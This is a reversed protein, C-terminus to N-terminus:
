KHSLANLVDADAVQTYGKMQQYTVTAPYYREELLVKHTQSYATSVYTFVELRKFRVALDLANKTGVVNVQYADVLDRDFRVDAAVHFLLSVRECIERRDREALGFNVDDLNGKVIKIKNLANPREKALKTFVVHNVYANKRQEFNCNKKDRILIYVDGIDPCDRLLKEVLCKGVFGTAGTVFIHKKRYWNTVDTM